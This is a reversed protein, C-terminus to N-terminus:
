PYKHRPDYAHINSTRNCCDMFSTHPIFIPHGGGEGVLLTHSGLCDEHSWGSCWSQLSKWMEEEGVGESECAVKLIEKTKPDNKDWAAEM